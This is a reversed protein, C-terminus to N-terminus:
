HGRYISAAIYLEFLARALAGMNEDDWVSALCDIGTLSVRNGNGNDFICVKEIDLVGIPQTQIYVDGGNKVVRYGLREDEPDDFIVSVNKGASAVKFMFEFGRTINFSTDLIRTQETGSEIQVENFVPQDTDVIITPDSLQEVGDTALEDTKYGFFKQAEAGYMLMKGALRKTEFRADSGLVAALYSKVTYGARSDLIRSGDYLDFRIRDNMCEFGIGDLKFYWFGDEYVGAATVPDKNEMAFRMSPAKVSDPVEAKVNLAITDGLTVFATAINREADSGVSVSVLRSFELDGRKLTVYAAVDTKGTIEKKPHLTFTYFDINSGAPIRVPDSSQWAAVVTYANMNKTWASSSILPEKGFLIRDALATSEIVEKDGTVVPEFLNVDYVPIVGLATVALGDEGGTVNLTFSVDGEGPVKVNPAISIELSDTLTSININGGIKGYLQPYAESGYSDPRGWEDADTRIAFFPLMFAVALFVATLKKLPKM